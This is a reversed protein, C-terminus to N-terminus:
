ANKFVVKKSAVKELVKELEFFVKQKKQEKKFV